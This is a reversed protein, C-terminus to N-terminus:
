NSDTRDNIWRQLFPGLYRLAMTAVVNTGPAPTEVADWRIVLVIRDGDNNKAMYPHQNGLGRHWTRSDYMIGHGAQLPAAKVCSLSQWSHKSSSDNDHRRNNGNGGVATHHHTGLLLETPGHTDKIDHLAILITLGPAANDVHFSQPASGGKSLLLQVVSVKYESQHHKLFYQRLLPDMAHTLERLYRGIKKNTRSLEDSKNANSNALDDDDDAEMAYKNYKNVLNWHFRGPTVEKGNAKCGGFLIVQRNDHAPAESLTGDALKYLFSQQKNDLLANTLRVAGHEDL